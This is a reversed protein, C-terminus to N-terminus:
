QDRALLLAPPVDHRSRRLLPSHEGLLVRSRSVVLDLDVVPERALRVIRDDLHGSPTWEYTV